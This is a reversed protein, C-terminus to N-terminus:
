SPDKVYGKQDKCKGRKLFNPKVLCSVFTREEPM